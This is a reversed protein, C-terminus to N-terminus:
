TAINAGYRENQRGRIIGQVFVDARGATVAGGAVVPLIRIKGGSPYETYLATTATTNAVAGLSTAAVITTPSTKNDVISISADTGNFAQRVAVAAGTLVFNPPVDIVLEQGIDDRTIETNFVLTWQANTIKRQAM